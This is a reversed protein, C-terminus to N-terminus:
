RLNEVPSSMSLRRAEKRIKELEGTAATITFDPTLSRWAEDSSHGTREGNEGADTRVMRVIVGGIRRITEFENPFRCDTVVYRHGLARGLAVENEVQSAWIDEYVDRFCDTGVWELLYRGTWPKGIRSVWPDGQKKFRPRINGLHPIPENKDAQTGWVHRAELNFKEQVMEKLPRAFSTHKFNHAEVLHSAAYDKGSGIDGTFGILPVLSRMGNVVETGDAAHIAYIKTLRAEVARERVTSSRV